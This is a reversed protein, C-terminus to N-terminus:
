ARDLLVSNVFFPHSAQPSRIRHDAAHCCSSKRRNYGRLVIGVQERDFNQIGKGRAEDARERKVTRSRVRTREPGVQTHCSASQPAPALRTQNTPLIAAKEVITRTPLKIRGKARCSVTDLNTNHLEM